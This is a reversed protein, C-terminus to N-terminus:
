PRIARVIPSGRPARITPQAMISVGSPNGAWRTTFRFPSNVPPQYKPWGSMM